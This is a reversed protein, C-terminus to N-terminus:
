GTEEHPPSSDTSFPASVRNNPVVVEPANALWWAEARAETWSERCRVRTLQAELALASPPRNAPDKELCQMLVQEMEKPIPLESVQSPPTPLTRAHHLLMQAPTSAQFVLQGTLAWYAACGLSYLDARADVPRDGLIAEPAM